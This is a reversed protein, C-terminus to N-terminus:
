ETDEEDVEEQHRGSPGTEVYYLTPDFRDMDCLECYECQTYGAKCSKPNKPFWRIPFREKRAQELESILFVSADAMWQDKAANREIKYVKHWHDWNKVMTEFLRKEYAGLAEGKKLPFSRLNPKRFANFFVSHAEPKVCLYFRAQYEWDLKMTPDGAFKHEWIVNAKGDELDWYEEGDFYAQIPLLASQYRKEVTKYDHTKSNFKHYARALARIGRLRTLYHKDDCPKGTYDALLGKIEKWPEGLHIGQMLDHGFSGCVFYHPSGHRKIRKVYQLYWKYRCVNYCGWIQSYSYIWPLSRLLDHAFSDCKGQAIHIPTGTRTMVDLTRNIKCFEPHSLLEEISTEEQNRVLWELCRVRGPLICYGGQLYRSCKGPRNGQSHAECLRKIVKKKKKKIAKKPM